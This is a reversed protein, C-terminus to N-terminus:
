ARGTRLEALNLDYLEGAGDHLTGGDLVVKRGAIRKERSQQKLLGYLAKAVSVLRRPILQATYVLSQM